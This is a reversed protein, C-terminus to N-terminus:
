VDRNLVGEAADETNDAIEVFKGFNATLYTIFGTVASVGVAIPAAQEAPLLAGLSAGLAVLPTLVAVIAKNYRGVKEGWTSPYQKVGTVVKSEAM